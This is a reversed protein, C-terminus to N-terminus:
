PAARAPWQPSTPPVAPTANQTGRRRIPTAAATSATRSEKNARTANTPREASRPRTVTTPMADMPSSSTGAESEGAAAAM